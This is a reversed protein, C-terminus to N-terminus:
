FGDDHGIMSISRAVSRLDDRIDMWRGQQKQGEEGGISAFWCLQGRCGPVREKDHIRGIM